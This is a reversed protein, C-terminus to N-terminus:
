KAIERVVRAAKINEINREAVVVRDPNTLRYDVEIEDGEEDQWRDMIDGRRYPCVLADFYIVDGVILGESWRGDTLWVHDTKTKSEVESVSNIMVTGRQEYGRAKRKGFKEVTGKWRTRQGVFPQLELRPM